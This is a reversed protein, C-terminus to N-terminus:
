VTRMLESVDVGRYVGSVFLKRAQGAELVALGARLRLPGGTLVVVADTTTDPIQVRDPSPIGEAFWILGALWAVLVILALALIQRATGLAGHTMTRRFLRRPENHPEGATM